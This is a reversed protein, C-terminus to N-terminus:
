IRRAPNGGVLDVPVFMVGALKGQGPEGNPGPFRHCDVNMGLFEPEQECETLLQDVLAHIAARAKEPTPELDGAMLDVLPGVPVPTQDGFDPGVGPIDMTVTAGGSDGKLAKEAAERAARDDLAAKVDDSFPLVLGNM